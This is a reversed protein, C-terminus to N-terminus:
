AQGGSKMARLQDRVATLAEIADNLATLRDGGYTFTEDDAAFHRVETRVRHTRYGDIGLELVILGAFDAGKIGHPTYDIFVDSDDVYHVSGGDQDYLNFAEVNLTQQKSM